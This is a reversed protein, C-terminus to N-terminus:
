ISFVLRSHFECIWYRTQVFRAEVITYKTAIAIAIAIAISKIRNNIIRNENIVM